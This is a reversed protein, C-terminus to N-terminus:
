SGAFQVDDFLMTPCRWAGLLWPDNAAQEFRMMLDLINGSINMESVASVREGREYLGGRIGFSFDGTTPNANGGLFGDVLIARDLGSLIDAVSERGPPVVLNSASGTTIDVNLRRSNYVDIFFTQLVGEEVIARRHAPLGDADARRSGAGRAILPEDFLSFSAAAVATHLRDAMCSRQEYIAGGALPSVLTGLIRSVVRRDLVMPYKGSAAPRGGLRSLARARIDESLTDISWLDTAHVTSCSSWAEPLRGDPEELSVSAAMGFSTRESEASFGNSYAVVSRSRGDWSYATISRVSQDSLISRVSSEVHEARRRRPEPDGDVFGPDVLDLDVEALGLLEREPLRRNPDQELYATAAVARELFARLAAPRLDSTSHTSYRNDVLLEVSASLSRSEKAEEIRGDRRTLESYAGYSVGATAEEAGLEKALKLVDQAVSAIDLETESM